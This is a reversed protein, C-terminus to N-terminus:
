DATLEAFLKSDNFDLAAFAQDIQTPRRGGILVSTTGPHHLAWALALHPMAHGTRASVAALRALRQEAVAHFYVPQMGPVVAFRSGPEVGGRHKGTLFGGGLPSYTVIAVGQAACLERLAADVERVALNHNNQLATFRTLGLEKQLTLVTGLQHANFNSAGLTRVRGSRVLQDLTTLAAPTAAEPDWKHLYLLDITEVGLRAASATVAAEMAAPTYPPYIKTAIMLRGPEPRRSALWAGVVLESAGASYTAATDFLTVGLKQAHDMLTFATAADNERAFNSSGLTIRSLAPASPYLLVPAM